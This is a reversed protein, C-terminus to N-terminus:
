DLYSASWPYASYIMQATEKQALNSWVSRDPSATIFSGAQTAIGNLYVGLASLLYQAKQIKSYLLCLRFFEAFLAIWFFLKLFLRLSMELSLNDVFTYLM